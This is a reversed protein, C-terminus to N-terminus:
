SKPSNKNTNNMAFLMARAAGGKFFTDKRWKGGGRKYQQWAQDFEKIKTFSNLMDMTLPGGTDLGIRGGQVNPRRFSVDWDELTEGPRLPESQELDPTNFNDREHIPIYKAMEMNRPEQAMTRPEQGEYQQKKEEIWDLINKM